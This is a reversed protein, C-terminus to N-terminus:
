RWSASRRSSRRRRAAPSRACATYRNDQRNCSYRTSGTDPSPSASIRKRYMRYKIEDKIVLIILCLDARRSAVIFRASDERQVVLDDGLVCGLSVAAEPLAIEVLIRGDIDGVHRRQQVQQGAVYGVAATRGVDVAVVDDVDRVHRRQQINQGGSFCVVLFPRSKAMRRWFGDKSKSETGSLCFFLFYFLSFKCFANVITRFRQVIYRYFNSNM